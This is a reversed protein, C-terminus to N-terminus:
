TDLPSGGEAAPPAPPDGGGTQETPVEEPKLKAAEMIQKIKPGHEKLMDAMKKIDAEETFAPKGDPLTIAKVDEESGGDQMSLLLIQSGVHFFTYYNNEFGEQEPIKKILDEVDKLTANPPLSM